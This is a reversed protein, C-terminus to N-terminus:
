GSGEIPSDGSSGGGGGGGVGAGVPIKSAGAGGSGAGGAGSAGAAGAAGAGGSAAAGSAMAGGAAGAAAPAAAGMTAVTAVAGTAVVAAGAAMKGASINGVAAVAPVAFRMLAPLAIVAMALLCVGEVQALGSDGSLTLRLAAAYCIAAAPKFAIFAILWACTKRYWANGAPTASAAASLPWLGGLVVILGSRILLLFIQTLASVVALCALIIMLGPVIATAGSLNYLQSFNGGSPTAQNLIWTSFADGAQVLLDIVALGAGAVVILRVIGAVAEKAPESRREWALRAGAIILALTAVFITIVQVRGALWSSTSGSGGVAPTSINTWGSVLFELAKDAAKAFGNAITAMFDGAISGAANGAAGAGLCPGPLLIVAPGCPNAPM